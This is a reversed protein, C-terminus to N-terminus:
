VSIRGESILVVAGAIRVSTLKGAEVVSTVSIHSQRGMEYGQEVVRKHLGDPLKDFHHVAGALCIVASGTAPDEM